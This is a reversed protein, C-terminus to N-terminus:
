ETQKEPTKKLTILVAGSENDKLPRGAAAEAATKDKIVTISEITSPDLSDMVEKSEEKGNIMIVVDVSPVPRFMVLEGEDQDNRETKETIITATGDDVRFM